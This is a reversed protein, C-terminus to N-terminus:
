RRSLGILAPKTPALIAVVGTPELVSFNFHSSAVPNVSSFIQQYKDAWGAYYVLRDIAAAVETQRPPRLLGAPDDRNLNPPAAKSCKPSATSSKRATTPSRAAWAPQAGRAAVVADRFDKRSCQCINPSPRAARIPHASLIPRIRQAPIQRRHLDQLNETRAPSQPKRSSM